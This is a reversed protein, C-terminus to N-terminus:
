STRVKWYVAYREDFLQYFPVLTVNRDQGYTEFERRTSTPRIWTTLDDSDVRFVPADVPKLKFEPVTRPRTPEARLTEPTLGETGLRGALVMPGYMLAQISSDDPMPQAHLQMPFRVDIRDGDKWTRSV